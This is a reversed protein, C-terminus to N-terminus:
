TKAIQLASIALFLIVSSLSSYFIVLYYKVTKRSIEWRNHVFGAIGTIAGIVPIASYVHSTGRYFVIITLYYILILSSFVKILTEPTFAVGLTYLGAKKDATIDKLDKIFVTSLMLPLFLLALFVGIKDLSAISTYLLLIYSPVAVVYVGVEGLYHRKLRIKTIMNDSYLFTATFVALYFLFCTVGGFLYSLIASSLYLGFTIVLAVARVDKESFPNDKGAKRDDDADNIHNWLNIAPYYVLTLLLPKWIDSINGGSFGVILPILPFPFIINPPSIM